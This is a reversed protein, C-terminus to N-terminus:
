RVGMGRLAASTSAFVKWQQTLQQFYHTKSLICQLRDHVGAFCVTCHKSAIMEIMEEFVEIGDIDIYSIDSFSIILQVKKNIKAIHKIEANINLFSIDGGFKCVVVDGDLQQIIYDDFHMKGLYEQGRFVTAFLHGQSTNYLYALLSISTGVIIGYIPDWVFTIGAVLIIVYLSFKDYYHVKKLAKFDLM